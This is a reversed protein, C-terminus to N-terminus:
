AIASDLDFDYHLDHSYPASGATWGAAFKNVVTSTTTAIFDIRTIEVVDTAPIEDRIVHTYRTPSVM